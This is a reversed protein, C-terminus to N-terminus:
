AEVDAIDDANQHGEVSTAEASNSRPCDGSNVAGFLAVMAMIAVIM